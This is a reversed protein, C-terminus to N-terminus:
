RRALLAPPECTAPVVVFPQDLRVPSFGGGGAEMQRPGLQDRRFVLMPAVLRGDGGVLVQVTGIRDVWRLTVTAGPPFGVGIATPVFGPPGVVPEVRLTPLTAHQRDGVQAHLTAMTPSADGDNQLTLTASRAGTGTPHFAVQVACTATAALTRGSCVDAVLQFEKDGTVGVSGLVVDVPGTNAVTFTSPAPQDGVLLAGLEVTPPTVSVHGVQGTGDLPILLPPVSGDVLLPVLLVASRPGLMTPHFVISVSCPPLEIQQYTYCSHGTITFDAAGGAFGSADVISM